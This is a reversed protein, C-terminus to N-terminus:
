TSSNINEKIQSKIFSERLAANSRFFLKEHYERPSINWPKNKQKKM